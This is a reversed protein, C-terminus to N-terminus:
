YLDREQTERRVAASKRRGFLKGGRGARLCNRFTVAVTVDSCKNSLRLSEFYSSKMAMYYKM